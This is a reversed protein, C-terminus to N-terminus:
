EECDSCTDNESEEPWPEMKGDGNCNTCDISMKSLNKTMSIELILNVQTIM